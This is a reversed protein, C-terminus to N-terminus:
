RPFPLFFSIVLVRLIIIIIIIFKWLFFFFFFFVQRRLSDNESVVTGVTESIGAAGRSKATRIESRLLKKFDAVDWKRGGGRRVEITKERQELASSVEM